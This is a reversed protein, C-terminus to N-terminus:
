NQQDLVNQPNFAYALLERVKAVMLAGDQRGIIVDMDLNFEAMFQRCEGCPTAYDRSDPSTVALRVFDRHGESVAKVMATREACISCGYASNEVNCGTFITGDACELAAGVRFHSYPSYSNRSAQEALKLLEENTM